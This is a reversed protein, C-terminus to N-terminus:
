EQSSIHKETHNAMRRYAAPELVEVARLIIHGPPVSKGALWEALTADPVGLYQALKGGGIKFGAKVLIRQALAQIEQEEPKM